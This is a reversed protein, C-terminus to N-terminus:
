KEVLVAVGASEIPGDETGWITTGQFYHRQLPPRYVCKVTYRGPGPFLMKAPIRSDFGAFSDEGISILAGRGTLDPPLPHYFPAFGNRVEHGSSDSVKLYLGAPAGWALANWITIEKEPSRFFVSLAIDGTMGVRRSSTRLEVRLGVSAARASQAVQSSASSVFVLFLIAARM